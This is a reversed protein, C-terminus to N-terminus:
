LQVYELQMPPMVSTVKQLNLPVIVQNAEMRRSKWSLELSSDVYTGDYLEDYISDDNDAKDIIKQLGPPLKEPAPLGSPPPSQPKDSDKGSM